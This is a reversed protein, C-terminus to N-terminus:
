TPALGALEMVEDPSDLGRVGVFVTSVGLAALEAYRARHQTV